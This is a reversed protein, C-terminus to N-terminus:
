GIGLREKYPEQMSSDTVEEPRDSPNLRHGAVMAAFDCILQETVHKNNPLSPNEQRFPLDLCYHGDSMKVKEAVPKAEEEPVADSQHLEVDATFDPMSHCSDSTPQSEFPEDEAEEYYDGSDRGEDEEEQPGETKGEVDRDSDGKADAVVDGDEKADAVVDGDEKADAVVDGDEKADSMNASHNMINLFQKDERSMEETEKSTNEKFDHKYQKVLLEELHVMAIRNVAAAPHGNADRSDNSGKLPGYFVWGLLTKAAYPGEGQSNILEWPELVKPSNTGILLDIGSAIENIKIDKLYPWKELDEQLPINHKSVPM